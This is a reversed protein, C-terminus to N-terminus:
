VTGPTCGTHEVMTVEGESTFLPVHRGFVENLVEPSLTERTPGQCVVRGRLGLVTDFRDTLCNLDHTTAVVTRGEARLGDLIDLLDHQATADLATAPEDLLILHADQALARALLARQRQGGSLDGIPREAHATLHVRELAAMAIQRDDASTREWWSRLSLRGQLVVDLVRIPFAWEIEENQPVYSLLGRRRGPSHGLISVTGRDPQVRGVLTRLLTSKGGGNPGIVAASTGCPVSWNIDSLVTRGDFSVSLNKVEICTANTKEPASM